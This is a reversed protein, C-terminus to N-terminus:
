VSKETLLHDISLHLTLTQECPDLKHQLVSIANAPRLHAISILLLQKLNLTLPLPTFSPFVVRECSSISLANESLQAKLHASYSLDDSNLTLIVCQIYLRLM